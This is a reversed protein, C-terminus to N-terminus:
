RMQRWSVHAQLWLRMNRLFSEGMRSTVREGYGRQRAIREAQEYSGAIITGYRFEDIKRDTLYVLGRSALFEVQRESFMGAEDASAPALPDSAPSSTATDLVVVANM